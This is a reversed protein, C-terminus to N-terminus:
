QTEKEFAQLEALSDEYLGRYLKMTPNREMKEHRANVRAVLKAHQEEPTIVWEPIVNSSPISGNSAPIVPPLVEAVTTVPLLGLKELSIEYQSKHGRGGKKDIALIFGDQELERLLMKIWQESCRLKRALLAKGPFIQKGDHDGFRLLALLLLKQRSTRIEECDIIARHILDRSMKREM